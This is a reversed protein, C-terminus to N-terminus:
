NPTASRPRTIEDVIRAMRGGPTIPRWTIAWKRGSILIAQKERRSALLQELKQIEKGPLILSYSDNGDQIAFKSELGPWETPWPLSEDPAYEYPWIIVEAWAPVWPTSNKPHLGTLVKYARDFEKPVVDAKEATPVRSVAPTPVFGSVYGYVDVKKSFPKEYRVIEVSPLDSVGPATNYEDKLHQFDEAKGMAARVWALEDATLRATSFITKRGNADAWILTGDPFLLVRPSDAGIMMAWPNREVVVAIPFDKPWPSAEPHDTGIIPKDACAVASILLVILSLAKPVSGGAGGLTKGSVQAAKVLCFILAQFNGSDRRAVPRTLNLPRTLRATGVVPPITKTPLAVRTFSVGTTTPRSASSCGGCVFATQKERFRASRM